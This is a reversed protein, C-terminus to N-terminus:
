SGLDYPPLYRQAYRWLQALTVGHPLRDEASEGTLVLQEESTMEWLPPTRQRRSRGEVAVLQGPYAKFSASQTAELKLGKAEMRVSRTQIRHREDLKVVELRTTVTIVLNNITLPAPRCEAVVTSPKDGQTSSSVLITFEM